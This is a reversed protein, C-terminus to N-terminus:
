ELGLAALPSTIEGNIYVEIHIHPKDACESPIEGSTGIIDGTAVKDNEKVTINELGCYKVSINEDYEITVIKGFNADDVVSKVSGSGASKINSGKDCLIDVGTHLRMDEFTASYQLATDSYGKSINGTIPLVFTQKEVKPTETQQQPASYPIDEVKDDVDTAPTEILNDQMDANDNYSNDTDPYEDQSQNESPTKITNNNRSLVFWTIAGIAILLCAVVSVFGTSTLMKTFKPTKYYKM